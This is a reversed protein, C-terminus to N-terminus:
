GEWEWAAEIMALYNPVPIYNAVSNGSGLGYGGGPACIDLVERTRARIQEPTGRALLDVDIGGLVAIRAGYRKKAETM